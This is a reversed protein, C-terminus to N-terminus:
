AGGEVVCVTQVGSHTGRTTVTARLAAALQETIPEQFQRPDIGRMAAIIAEVAIMRSSAIEVAYVDVADDVPCRGVFQMTYTVRMM